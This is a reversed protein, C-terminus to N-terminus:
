LSDATEINRFKYRGRMAADLRALDAQSWEPKDMELWGLHNNNKVLDILKPSLKNGRVLLQKLLPLTALPALDEAALNCCNLNLNQLTPITALLKIDDATVTTHNLCLVVMAKSGKLAKLLSRVDKGSTFNLVILRDLCKLKALDAGTVYKTTSLSLQNLKPMQDVLKLGRPTVDTADLNLLELNTLHNVYYLEDDTDTANGFLQLAVLDDPLFKRFIKPHIGCERGAEFQVRAGEPIKVEGKADIATRKEKPSDFNITLGGLIFDPPFKYVRSGKIPKGGNQVFPISINELQQDELPTLRVAQEPQVGGYSLGTVHAIKPPKHQKYALYGGTGVCVLLIALAASAIILLNGKAKTRKKEEEESFLDGTGTTAYLLSLKKGDKIAQLDHALEDMTQYRDSAEKALVRQVVADWEPSFDLGMSAHKLTPPAENQHKLITQVINEGVFPPGGTLAEFMTCGLSYIDSRENIHRGVSQEPSMYMPSGFVEGTATLQQSPSLAGGVLKVLGFDVLKPVIKRNRTVLM